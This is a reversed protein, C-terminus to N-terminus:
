AHPSIDLLQCNNDIVSKLMNMTLSLEFDDIKTMGLDDLGQLIKLSRSIIKIARYDTKIALTSM